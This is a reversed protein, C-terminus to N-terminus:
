CRRRCSKECVMFFDQSSQEGMCKAICDQLKFMFETKDREMVKKSKNKLLDIKQYQKCELEVDYENKERDIITINAADLPLFCGNDISETKFNVSEVDVRVFREGFMGTIDDENFFMVANFIIGMLIVGFSFYLISFGDDM